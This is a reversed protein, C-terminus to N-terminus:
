QIPTGRPIKIVFNGGGQGLAEAKINNKGVLVNVKQGSSSYLTVRSSNSYVDSVTGIPLSSGAFVQEGVTM